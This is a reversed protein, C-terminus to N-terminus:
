EGRAAKLIQQIRSPHRDFGEALERVSWGEDNLTAIQAHRFEAMQGELEKALLIVTYAASAKSSPDPQAAAWRAAEVFLGTIGPPALIEPLHKTEDSLEAEKALDDEYDSWDYASGM